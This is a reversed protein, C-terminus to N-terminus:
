LCRRYLPWQKFHLRGWKSSATPNILKADSTEMCIDVREALNNNSHEDVVIVSVQWDLPKFTDPAVIITTLQKDILSPEMDIKIGM